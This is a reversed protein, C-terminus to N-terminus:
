FCKNGTLFSIVKRAIYPYGKLPHTGDSPFYESFNYRNWGLTNYMDCVSIHNNVVVESVRQSFERLTLGAANEFNDSSLSNDWSNFDSGIYRIIPTLWYIQLHKYTGQLLSIIKNIAGLTTSPDTSDSDGMNTGALRWDNTGGFIVVASVSDWEINELKDIIDRYTPQDDRLYDAAAYQKAFDRNCAAEVLSYIDLAAYADTESQPTDVPIARQRLQAGGIAVNVMDLNAIDMVYDPWTKYNSDQHQTISDGFCVIRTRLTDRVPALAMLCKDSNEGIPSYPISLKNRGVDNWASETLSEPILECVVQKDGDSTRWSEPARWSEPHGNNWSANADEDSFAFNFLSVSVIIGQFPNTKSYRAGIIFNNPAPLSANFDTNVRTRNVYAWCDSNRTVLICEYLTNPEAKKSYTRSGGPSLSVYGDNSIDVSVSIGYNNFTFIQQQNGTVDDSTKFVIRVTKEGTLLLHSDASMFQGKGMIAGTFMSSKQALDGAINERATDANQAAQNATAASALATQSSQNATQAADLATQTAEAVETLELAESQNTQENTALTARGATETSKPLESIKVTAINTGTQIVDM